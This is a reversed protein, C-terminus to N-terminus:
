VARGNPYATFVYSLETCCTNHGSSKLTSSLKMDYGECEVNSVVKCYDYLHCQNVISGRGLRSSMSIYSFRAIM